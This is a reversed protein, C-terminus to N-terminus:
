AKKFFTDMQLVQIAHKTCLFMPGKAWGLGQLMCAAVSNCINKEHVYDGWDCRPYEGRDEFVQVLAEIRNTQAARWKQDDFTQWDNNSM